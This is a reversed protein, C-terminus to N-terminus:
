WVTFSAVCSVFQYILQSKIHNAVSM